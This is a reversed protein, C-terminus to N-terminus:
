TQFMAKPPVNAARALKEITESPLARVKGTLYAIIEGVPLGAQRAWDSPRLHAKLMFARFAERRRTIEPGRPVALANPAAVDDMLVRPKAHVSASVPPAAPRRFATVPAVAVPTEPRWENTPRGLMGASRRPAHGHHNKKDM